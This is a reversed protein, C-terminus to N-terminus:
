TIPKTAGRFCPRRDSLEFSDAGHSVEEVHHVAGDIAVTLDPRRGIIGFEIHDSGRQIHYSM